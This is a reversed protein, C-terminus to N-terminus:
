ENFWTLSVAAIVSDGSSAPRREAKGRWTRLPTKRATHGRGMFEQCLKQGLFGHRILDIFPAVAIPAEMQEPEASGSQLGPPAQDRPKPQRCPRRLRRHSTAPQPAHGCSAAVAEPAPIHSNQRCAGIPREEIHPRLQWRRRDAPPAYGRNTCAFWIRTGRRNSRHAGTKRIRGARGANRRRAGNRVFAFSGPATRRKRRWTGANRIAGRLGPPSGM